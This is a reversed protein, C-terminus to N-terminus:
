ACVEEMAQALRELEGPKLRVRLVRRGRATLARYDGTAQAQILQGFTHGAGPVQIDRSPSTEIQLFAGSPKGGKHLQGTSHLYRPGYGLTTAVGRSRVIAKRIRNLYGDTPQTPPTYALVAAYDGPQLSELWPRLASEVGELGQGPESEAAKLSKLAAQSQAKSEQVNPQDFPNVRMWAGVLATAVEWTYFQAGLDLRHLGPLSGADAGPPLDVAMGSEVMTVYLRDEGLARPVMPEDVIPIIGKGQKGTSEAVLQEMWVGFAGYGPTTALTLKDRGGRWNAALHAALPAGSVEHANGDKAALADRTAVTAARELVETLPVGILAAPVLGFYSLASFRGGIEPDNAFCRLFGREQALQALVTGPDTIAIFQGGRQGTKEWCLENLSCSEVTTGSKSAVIFLTRALEGGDLAAAIADPHTTDLVVLALSGPRRRFSKAFVEPALSSGGMGLLAVRDFSGKVQDVLGTLEGLQREYRQPADLWGLRNAVEPTRPDDVWLTPDKAFLRRVMAGAETELLKATDSM